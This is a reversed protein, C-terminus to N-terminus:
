TRLNSSKFIDKSMRKTAPSNNANTQAVCTWNFVLVMGLFFLIGKM